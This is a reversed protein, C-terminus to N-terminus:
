SHNSLSGCRIGIRVCNKLIRPFGAWQCCQYNGDADCFCIPGFDDPLWDPLRFGPLATPQNGVGFTPGHSGPQVGPQIAAHLAPNAQAQQMLGSAIAALQQPSAGAGSATADYEHSGHAHHHHDHHSHGHDHQRSTANAMADAAEAMLQEFLNAWTVSAKPDFDVHVLDVMGGCCAHQQGTPRVARIASKPVRMGAGCGCGGDPLHPSIRVMDPEGEIAKITASWPAPTSASELFADLSMETPEPM